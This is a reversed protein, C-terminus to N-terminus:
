NVYLQKIAGWTSQEVPVTASCDNSLGPSPACGSGLPPATGTYPNLADFVQWTAGGDPTRGVARDDVVAHSEYTYEDVLTLEGDVNDYLYVTDGGNNLSLGVTSFGNASEWAVADSGYVVRTEGPAITGTFGFRWNTTGGSGDTLQYCSLDVPAPGVNVIEVWEDNKSSVSGDGDWDIVPDALIENIMVQSNVPSSFGAAAAALFFLFAVYKM